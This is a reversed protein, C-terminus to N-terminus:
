SAVKKWGEKYTSVEDEDGQERVDICYAREKLQSLVM